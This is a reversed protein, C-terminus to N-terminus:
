RNEVQTLIQQLLIRQEVQVSRILDIDDKIDSVDEKINSVGEELRAYDATDVKQSVSSEIDGAWIGVTILGVSLTGIAWQLTNNM